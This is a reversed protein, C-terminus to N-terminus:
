QAVELGALHVLDTASLQSGEVRGDPQSPISEIEGRDTGEPGM